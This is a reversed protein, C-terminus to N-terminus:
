GESDPNATLAAMLADEAAYLADSVSDPIRSYVDSLGDSCRGYAKAAEVLASVLEAAENAKM